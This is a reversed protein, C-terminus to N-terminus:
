NGILARRINSVQRYKHINKHSSTTFLIPVFIINLLINCINLMRLNYATNIFQYM